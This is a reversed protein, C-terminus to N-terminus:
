NNSSETRSGVREVVPLISTDSEERTSPLRAARTAPQPDSRKAAGTNTLRSVLIARSSRDLGSVLVALLMVRFGFTPRSWFINCDFRIKRQSTSGSDKKTVDVGVESSQCGCLDEDGALYM